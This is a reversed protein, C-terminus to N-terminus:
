KNGRKLIETEDEFVDQYLTDVTENLKLIVDLIETMPKRFLTFEFKTFSHNEDSYLEPFDYVSILRDTLFFDKNQQHIIRKCQKFLKKTKVDPATTGSKVWFKVELFLSKFNNIDVTGANFSVNHYENILKFSQGKTKNM